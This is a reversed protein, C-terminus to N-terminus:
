NQAPEDAGSRRVGSPTDGFRRRFARSFTSPEPFGVTSAVEGIKGVTRTPHTLLAFARKLREEEVFRGFSQGTGAFLLHVYRDTVGHRRAITKASLRADSLHALVDARIMALRAARIGRTQAQEMADATAGLAAALLDYVHSVVARQLAAGRLESAKDLAGLYGLLLKLAEGHRPLPRLLLSGADVVMTSIVSRPVSLIALRGGSRLTSTSAETASMLVAEGAALTAARGRQSFSSEGSLGAGLILNDSSRAAVERTRHYHADSRYGHAIGLGPLSRLTVGARFPQDNIPEIDLHGVTRGYFDALTRDYIDRWMELRRHPPFADTSLRVPAFDSFHSNM